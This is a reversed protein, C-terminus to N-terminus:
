KQNSTKSFGHLLMLLMVVLMQDRQQNNPQNFGCSKPPIKKQTKYTNKHSNIAMFTQQLDSQYAVQSISLSLSLVLGVVGL